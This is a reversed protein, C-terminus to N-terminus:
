LYMRYRSMCLEYRRIGVQEWDCGTAIYQCLVVYLCSVCKNRCICVSLLLNRSQPIQGLFLHKYRCM